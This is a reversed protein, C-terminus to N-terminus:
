APSSDPADFGLTVQAHEVPAEELFSAVFGARHQPCPGLRRLAERHIETGYGKHQDFGYGPHAKEMAEMMRDRSVKAIISALAIALSRADGGVVAEHEFPFPKLPLGDVIVRAVPVAGACGAFLGEDAGKLPLRVRGDAQAEAAMLARRMALRTAGLINLADIEAADASGSAFYATGEESLMPLADFVKARTSPSMKKSDDILRSYERCWRGKFFSQELIVAGAVVPGALSGRGAEDVGALWGGNALRRLDFQRLARNSSAM